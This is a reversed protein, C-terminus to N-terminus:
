VTGPPQYPNNTPPVHYAPPMGQPIPGGPPPLRNYTGIMAFLASGGLFINGIWNSGGGYLSMGLQLIGFLAIAIGFAVGRGPAVWGFMGQRFDEESYDLSLLFYFYLALALLAFGADAGSAVAGAWAMTAVLADPVYGLARYAVWGVGFCLLALALLAITGLILGRSTSHVDRQLTVGGAILLLYGLVALGAVILSVGSLLLQGLDHGGLLSYFWPMSLSMLAHALLCGLGGLAMLLGSRITPGNM